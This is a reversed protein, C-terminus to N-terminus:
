DNILDTLASTKRNFVNEFAGYYDNIEYFYKAADRDVIHIDKTLVDPSPFLIEIGPKYYDLQLLLDPNM